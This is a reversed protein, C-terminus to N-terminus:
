QSRPPPLPESYREAARLLVCGLAHAGSPSLRARVGCGILASGVRLEIGELLDVEVGEFKMAFREPEPMRSLQRNEESLTPTEAGPPKVGLATWVGAILGWIGGQRLEYLKVAMEALTEAELLEVSLDAKPCIVWRKPNSELLEVWDGFLFLASDRVTSLDPGGQARDPLDLCRLTRSCAVCKGERDYVVWFATNSEPQACAAEPVVERGDKLRAVLRGGPYLRAIEREVM